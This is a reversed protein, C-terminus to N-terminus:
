EAPNQVAATSRDAADAVEEIRNELTVMRSELEESCEDIRSRLAQIAPALASFFAVDFRVANLSRFMLAEAPSMVGLLFARYANQEGDNRGIQQPPRNPFRPDKTIEQSEWRDYFDQMTLPRSRPLTKVFQEWPEVDPLISVLTEFESQPM